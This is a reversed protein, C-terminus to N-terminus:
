ATIHALKDDCKDSNEIASKGLVETLATYPDKNYDFVVEIQKTVLFLLFATFYKIM